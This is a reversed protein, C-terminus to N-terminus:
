PTILLLNKISFFTYGVNRENFLTHFFGHKLNQWYVACNVSLVSCLSYFNVQKQVKFLLMKERLEQHIM